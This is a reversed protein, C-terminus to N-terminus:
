TGDQQATDPTQDTLTDVRVSYQALAENLASANGTYFACTANHLMLLKQEMVKVRNETLLRM